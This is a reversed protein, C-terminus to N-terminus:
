GMWPIWNHGYMMHCSRLFHVPMCSKLCLSKNPHCSMIWHFLISLLYIHVHNGIFVVCSRRVWKHRRVCLDLDSVVPYLKCNSVQAIVQFVPSNSLSSCAPNSSRTKFLRSAQCSHALEQEMAYLDSFCFKVIGSAVIEGGKGGAM